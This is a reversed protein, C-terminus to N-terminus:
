KSRGRTVDLWNKYLDFMEMQRKLDTTDILNQIEARTQRKWTVDMNAFGYTLAATIATNLKLQNFDVKDFTDSEAHYNPGYDVPAQNAALNGIGQMMFDYNDTGVIPVNLQQFPGLGQVPKLARNVPEVLEERGNTFFGLIRGCGIDISCAMIHGDLEHAHTRTYQWSGRMGQEEGNWLTFRITRKPKINLRKMQRAIDIVMVVNCGNDIAGTGLDWSDIHAGIVVFENPKETGPIEGIVNFSEYESGSEIDIKATLFLKKGARLLRLVRQAQGREIVLMPHKNDPGLSANHRYLIGKPRSSMYVVGAAGAAFARKEIKGAAEYERFLGEVDLLEGTEIFAFAGKAKDGVRKFDEETGHGVDILPAKFGKKPTSTSFPMAAADVTFSVDGSIVAGASRELWFNPMIFKEKKAIVGAEKFKKIAWEVAELNAKSGTPRGGIEDCLQRLDEKLPTQKLMAAVLYDVESAQSILQSPVFLCIIIIFILKLQKSKLSNMLKEKKSTLHISFLNKKAMAMFINTSFDIFTLGWAM